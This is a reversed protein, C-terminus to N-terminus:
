AEREDHAVLSGFPRGDDYVEIARRLNEDVEDVVRQLERRAGGDLLDLDRRAAVAVAGHQQRHAVVPGAHRLRLELLDELQEIAGLVLERALGHTRPDAEREDPLESRRHARADVRAVALRAGLEADLKRGVRMSREAYVERRRFSSPPLPIFATMSSRTADKSRPVSDRLCKIWPSVASAAAPPASGAAPCVVGNREVRM